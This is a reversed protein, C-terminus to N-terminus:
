RSYGKAKRPVGWLVGTDRRVYCLRCHFVITVTRRKSPLLRYLDACRYPPLALASSLQVNETILFPFPMPVRRCIGPRYDCVVTPQQIEFQFLLSLVRPFQRPIM